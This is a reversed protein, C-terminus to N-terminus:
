IKWFPSSLLSIKILIISIVICWTFLVFSLCGTRARTNRVFGVIMRITMRKTRAYQRIGVTDEVTVFVDGQGYWTKWGDYYYGTLPNLGGAVQVVLNGGEVKVGLAGEDFNEGVLGGPSPVEGVGHPYSVRDPGLTFMYDPLTTGSQTDTYYSSQLGSVGVEWVTEYGAFQDALWPDAWGVSCLVVALAAAFALRREM